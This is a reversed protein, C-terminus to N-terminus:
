AKPPTFSKLFDQVRDQLLGENGSLRRLMRPSVPVPNLSSSQGLLDAGSTSAKRLPSDAPLKSFDIPMPESRRRLMSAPPPELSNPTPSQSRQRPSAPRTKMVSLKDVVEGFACQSPDQRRGARPSSPQSRARPSGPRNGSACNDTPKLDSNTLSNKRPIAPLKESTTDRGAQAEPLNKAFQLLLKPSINSLAPATRRRQNLYAAPPVLPSDPETKDAEEDGVTGEHSSGDASAVDGDIVITPRRDLHPSRPPKPARQTTAPRSSDAASSAKIRLGPMKPRGLVPSGPPTKMTPAEEDESQISNRWRRWDYKVDLATEGLRLMNKRENASISKLKAQLDRDALKENKLVTTIVRSNLNSLRKSRAGRSSMKAKLFILREPSTLLAWCRPPDLGLDGYCQRSYIKCVICVCAALTQHDGIRHCCHGTMLHYALGTKTVTSALQSKETLSSAQLASLRGLCRKRYKRLRETQVKHEVSLIVCM